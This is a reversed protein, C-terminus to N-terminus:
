AGSIINIKKASHFVVPDLSKDVNSEYAATFNQNTNELDKNNNGQETTSM